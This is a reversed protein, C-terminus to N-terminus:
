KALTHWSYVKKLAPLQKLKELTVGTIRTENLNLAELHNLGELKQTIQDTLPNKELRLKELNTMLLLFDLENETLGNGSLNLWIVNKAVGKLSPKIRSLKEGSGAPLTIDLMVPKHQMVRVNLGLNRLTDILGSNFNVPIDPNIKREPNVALEDGKAGEGLGLFRAVQPKLEGADKLAGIKVNKTAMGKEIWWKIISTEEPTLPTKGDAPMHKENSPDLSIRNYLESKALSGGVVVSKSKGGKMLGDFTQVSLEGKMKGERHCQACKKNLIPQVVDEFLRAEEISIPKKAMHDGIINLSLYDGGHTLSGGLHGTYTVVLLLILCAASFIRRHASVIKKFPKTTLLFLLGSIVTLAIGSIKHNTLTQPDYDGSLSLLFGFVSAVAASLFGLLLILSVAPRLGKYKRFWSLIEFLVALMLFGIPLHVIVPHLHGLFTTIDLVMM